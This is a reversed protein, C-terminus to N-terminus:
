IGGDKPSALIIDDPLGQVCLGIGVDRDLKITVLVPKVLLNICKPAKPIGPALVNGLDNAHGIPFGIGRPPLPVMAKHHLIALYREGLVDVLIAAGTERDMEDLHNDAINGLGQHRRM